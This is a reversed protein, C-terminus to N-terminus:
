RMVGKPTETNMNGMRYGTLDLSVFAFGLKKLGEAVALRTEEGGLRGIDQTPVEIRAMNGHSRVRVAPFGLDHLLEESRDIRQLLEETVTQGCPIRTALCANAPKSFTKLGAEESLRRIEAKSLGAEELPSKVNLERAAAAGPRYDQTDDSNSGDAVTGIGLQSALEAIKQFGSRKCLYCRNPPNQALGEVQLVDTKLIHHEIGYHETFAQAEELEKRPVFASEITAAVAGAGLAEHAAWLLYTSDVGGSFAVVVRDYGKIIEKLREEKQKMNMYKVM